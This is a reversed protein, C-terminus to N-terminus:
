GEGKVLSPKPRQGKAVRAQREAVLAELLARWRGGQAAALRDVKGLLLSLQAPRLDVVLAGACPLGPPITPPPPADGAVFAKHASVMSEDARAQHGTAEPFVNRTTSNSEDAPAELAKAEVALPPLTVHAPLRLECKSSEIYVSAVATHYQTLVEALPVGLTQSLAVACAHYRRACETITTPRPAPRSKWERAM